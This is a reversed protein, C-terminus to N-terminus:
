RRADCCGATYTARAETNSGGDGTSESPFWIRLMSVWTFMARLPLMRSRAPRATLGGRPGRVIRLCILTVASVASMRSTCAWAEDPRSAARSASATAFSYTPSAVSTEDLSAAVATEPSTWCFSLTSSRSCSVFASISAM